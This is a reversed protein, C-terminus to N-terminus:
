WDLDEYSDVYGQTPHYYGSGCIGCRYGVYKGKLNYYPTWNMTAGFTVGKPEFPNLEGTESDFIMNM